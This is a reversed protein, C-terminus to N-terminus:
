VPELLHAQDPGRCPRHGQDPERSTTPTPRRVSNELTEATTQGLVDLDTAVDVGAPSDGRHPEALEGAPLDNGDGGGPPEDDLGRWELRRLVHTWQKAREDIRKTELDVWSYQHQIVPSVQSGAGDPDPLTEKLLHGAHDYLNTTVADTGSAVAVKTQLVRGAKDYVTTAKQGTEQQLVVTVRGVADYTTLTTRTQAIQDTGAVPDILQTTRTTDGAQNCQYDHHVRRM